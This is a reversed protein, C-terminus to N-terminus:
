NSNQRTVRWNRTVSNYDPVFEILRYISQVNQNKSKCIHVLCCLTRISTFFHTLTVPLSISEGGGEGKVKNYYVNGRGGREQKENIENLM